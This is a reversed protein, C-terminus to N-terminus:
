LLDASGRVTGDAEFISLHTSGSVPDHRLEWWRRDSFVGRPADVTQGPATGFTALHIPAGAGPDALVIQGTTQDVGVLISGAGGAAIIEAIRQKAYPHSRDVALRPGYANTAVSWPEITDQDSDYITRNDGTGITTRM